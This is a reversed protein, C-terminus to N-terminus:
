PFKGLRVEKLLKKFENNKLGDTKLVSYAKFNFVENCM